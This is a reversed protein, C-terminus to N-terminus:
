FKIPMKQQYLDLPTIPSGTYHEEYIDWSIASYNPDAGKDLLLKILDNQRLMCAWHLASLGRADKANVDIRPHQLLKKAIEVNGKKLALLLPSNITDGVKNEQLRKIDPMGSAINVLEQGDGAQMDQDIYALALANQGRQIAKHLLTNGYMRSRFKIAQERPLPKLDVQSTNETERDVRESNAIPPTVAVPPAATIVPATPSAVPRNASPEEKKEPTSLESDYMTFVGHIDDDKYTVSYRKNKSILIMDGETRERGDINHHDVTATRRAVNGTRAVIELEELDIKKESLEKTLGDYLQQAFCKKEGQDTGGHCAILSIRLSTKPAINSSILNAFDDITWDGTTGSLKNHGPAGHGIIYLRCNGEIKKPLAVSTSTAPLDILIQDQIIQKDKKSDGLVGDVWIGRSTGGPSPLRIIGEEIDKKLKAAGGPYKDYNKLRDDSPNQLNLIVQQTYPIYANTKRDRKQYKKREQLKGPTADTQPTDGSKM